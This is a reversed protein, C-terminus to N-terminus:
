DDFARLAEFMEPAAGWGNDSAFNMPISGDFDAKPLKVRLACRCQTNARDMTWKNSPWTYRLHSLRGSRGTPQRLKDDPCFNPM